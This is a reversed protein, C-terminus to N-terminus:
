TASMGPGKTLEHQCGHTRERESLDLVLRQDEVMRDLDASVGERSLNALSVRPKTLILESDRLKARLGKYNQLFFV